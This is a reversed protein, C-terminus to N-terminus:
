SGKPSYGFCKYNKLKKSTKLADGLDETEIDGCLIVVISDGVEICCNCGKIKRGEIGMSQLIDRKTDGCLIVVISDKIEICCNSEREKESGM